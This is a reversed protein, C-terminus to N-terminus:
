NSSDKHRPPVLPHDAQRPYASAPNTQERNKVVLYFAAFSSASLALLVWPNPGKRITMLTWILTQRRGSHVELEVVGCVNVSEPWAVGVISAIQDSDSASVGNLNQLHHTGHEDRLVRNFPACPEDSIVQM